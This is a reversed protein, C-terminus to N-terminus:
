SVAAQRKPTPLLRTLLAIFFLLAILQVLSAGFAQAYGSALSTTFVLGTIAVGLANGVQTMTSLSGSVEGAYEPTSHSIVSAILAPIALGQGAGVLALGPALLLLPGGAGFDRVFLWLLCDGAAVCLAGFLIVDRGLRTALRPASMSAIFFTVALISFVLGAAIPKLGRGDQLYLALVLFFSAQTCWFTLQTILGVALHHNGFVISPFIPTRLAREQRRVYPPVASLLLAALLFSLWTWAPWGLRNGEILPVVIALLAVTVLLMGVPDLHRAQHSRSEPINTQALILGVLGIPLNILFIARWSLGALNAAILLGGLVQGGAGALGMVMGYAALAQVRKPGSYLVSMISLVNPSILAAGIGQGFRAAVLTASNPALSCIASALVFVVLGATFACRRGIRDGVRGGAILFAAFAMGYGAVVWELSATSASLDLQISPLAVNVIFADLVIMFTGILLVHLPAWGQEQAAAHLETAKTTNTM